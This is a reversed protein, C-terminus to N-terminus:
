SFHLCKRGEGRDSVCVLDSAGVSRYDALLMAAAGARMQVRRLVRGTTGERWDIRGNSWCCALTDGSWQLAVTNQKSQIFAAYDNYFDISLYSLM